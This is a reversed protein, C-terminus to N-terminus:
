LVSALLLEDDCNTKVLKNTFEYKPHYFGTIIIYQKVSESMLVSFLVSVDNM